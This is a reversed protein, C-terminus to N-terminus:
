ILPIKPTISSGANDGALRQTELMRDNSIMQAQVSGVYGPAGGLVHGSSLVPVSWRPPFARAINASRPLAISRGRHIEEAWHYILISIIQILAM